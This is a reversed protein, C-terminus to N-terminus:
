ERTAGKQGLVTSYLAQLQRAASDWAFQKRVSEAQTAVDGWAGARVFDAIVGALQAPESAVLRGGSAQVIRALAGAPSAIVPLGSAAADLATICFGEETSPQIYLNADDYLGALVDRGVACSLRLQDELGLEVVRLAISDLYGPVRGSPGVVDWEFTLGLARLRAAVEPILHQRKHPAYGGATLLRLPAGPLPRRSAPLAMRALLDDTPGHGVIEVPQGKLIPALFESVQVSPVVVADYRHSRLRTRNKWGVLALRLEERIRSALPANPLLVRCEQPPVNHVTAITPLGAQRLRATDLMEMAFLGFVLHLLDPRDPSTAREVALANAKRCFDYRQTRSADGRSPYGVDIWNVRYPPAANDPRWGDPEPGPVLLEVEVGLRTLASLTEHVYSVTGGVRPLYHESIALLKM